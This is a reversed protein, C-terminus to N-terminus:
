PQEFFGITFSIYFSENFTQVTTSFVFVLTISCISNFINSMYLQAYIANM